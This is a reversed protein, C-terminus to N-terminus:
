GGDNKQAKSVQSEIFTMASIYLAPQDFIGGAVLLHGARYTSFLDLWRSSERTVLRRPCIRSKWDGIQWRDYGIDGNVSCACNGCPAWNPDIAVNIAIILKKRHTGRPAREGM